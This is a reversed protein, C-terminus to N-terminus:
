LRVCLAVIVALALLLMLREARLATSHLWRLRELRDPGEIPDMECASWSRSHTRGHIIQRHAPLQNM